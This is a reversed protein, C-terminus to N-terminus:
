KKSPDVVMQGPQRMHWDSDPQQRETEVPAPDHDRPDPGRDNNYEYTSMSRHDHRECALGSLAVCAAFVLLGWNRIWTRM